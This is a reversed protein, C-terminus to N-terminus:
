GPLAAHAPAEFDVFADGMMMKYHSIHGSKEFVGRFVDLYTNVMGNEISVYLDDNAFHSGDNIWSFLSKCILREKGDFMAFIKDQDIGGLIKFYNEIIRRLTNQITLVSRDKRRVESWLLEYSTKIPNSKHREIVSGTDSKRVIWFSEEAMAVDVRKPNFTIEKHFYVNHTLMFIQKIHSEGKRLEEFLGRILSSVIFLVDSDLSSVPDDFVVVRDVTMGSESESGKLLHYFYLFTVFTKEGESLTKKASTGDERILQYSSGNETTALSFGQFGFSNLLQNIGNVTPQTSTIQKELEKIEKEKAVKTLTANQIKEKFSTIAALLNKQAEHFTVLDSSLEDLVFKWVQSTLNKQELALNSVMLNHETVKANAASILQVIQVAANETSELSIVQSAEKKKDDIKKKNLEIKSDIIEKELKLKQIDLFRSNGSILAEIKLQLRESDTTYDISLKQIATTDSTFTEDFYEHLSESFKQPTKQQCFPCTEHNVDYFSRGQQVWDSNGLSRIMAAIDVDDKGIVRKVLIPNSEHALLTDFEIEPIKEETVPTPGFIVASKRELEELSLIEAKNSIAESLVKTKFKEASGRYGEFGGSLKADYKQKQTWCKTKFDSELKELEGIKGGTGDVGQLALTLAQIKGIATDIEQKAELIKEKTEVLSEGLTFVGKLSESQNFNKEVFDCNYVMTQLPTGGKWGIKCHPFQSGDAIVRSITTKGSGNTGFLFNFKALKDLIAPSKQYTAVRNVEISEIM